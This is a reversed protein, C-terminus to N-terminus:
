INKSNPKGDTGIVPITDGPRMCQQLFTLRSNLGEPTISHFTPSFYKIQQKISDYFMPNSQEIMEFYDCESLLNRLIKKSIGDKIKQTTTITPPVPTAGVFPAGGNDNPQNSTTNDNTTVPTNPISDIVRM